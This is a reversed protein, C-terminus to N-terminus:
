VIFLIHAVSMRFVIRNVCYVLCSGPENQFTYSECLVCSM